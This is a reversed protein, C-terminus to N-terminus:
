EENASKVLYSLIATIIGSLLIIAIDCVSFPIFGLPEFFMGKGFVFLYGDMLVLEGIYMAFTTLMALVAPLWVSIFKNKGLLHGAFYMGFTVGLVIFFFGTLFASLPSIYLTGNRFFATFCALICLGIFLGVSATQLILAKRKYCLGEKFMKTFGCFISIISLIIVISILYFHVKFAPNKEAYIPEGISRLVEPTAICLSYQWSQLPLKILEEVVKIGEFCLETILFLGVGLCSAAILTYRKLLKYILPLLATTIILSICIPTYPIIYKPYAEAQVHGIQIYQMLVSIGMYIPYLSLLIIIVLSTIYFTRYKSNMKMGGILINNINKYAKLKHGTKCSCREVNM